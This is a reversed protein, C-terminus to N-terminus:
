FSYGEGASRAAEGLLLPWSSQKTLFQKWFLLQDTIEEATLNRKFGMLGTACFNCALACGVQSSVCVSWLGPKPQMLVTEVKLGDKLRARAKHASGNSASRVDEPELSLLPMEKELRERLLAPLSTMQAYSSVGEHVAKLIQKLRYGPEGLAKLFANLRSPDM